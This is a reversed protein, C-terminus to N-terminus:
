RGIKPEQNSLRIALFELRYQVCAKLVMEEDFHKLHPLNLLRPFKLKWPLHLLQESNLRENGYCQLEVTILHVALLERRVAKLVLTTKCAWLLNRLFSIVYSKLRLHTWRRSWHNVKCVGFHTEGPPSGLHLKSILLGDESPTVCWCVKKPSEKSGPISSQLPASRSDIESVSTSEIESVFVQWDECQCISNNNNDRLFLTKYTCLRITGWHIFLHWPCKNNSRWSLFKHSYEQRSHMACGCLVLCKKPPSHVYTVALLSSSDRLPEM